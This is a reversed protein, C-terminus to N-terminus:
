VCGGEETRFGKGWVSGGGEREPFRAGFVRAVEGQGPVWVGFVEGGGYYGDVRRVGTKLERRLIM